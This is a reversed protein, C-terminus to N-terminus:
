YFGRKSQHDFVQYNNNGTNNINNYLRTESKNKNVDNYNCNSPTKAIMQHDNINHKSKVSQQQQQQQLRSRFNDISKRCPQVRIPVNNNINNSDFNYNYNNNINNCNNYNYSELRQAATEYKFNDNKYVSFTAKSPLSQDYVLPSSQTSSFANVDVDTMDSSYSFLRNISQYNNLTKVPKSEGNQFIPADLSDKILKKPQLRKIKNNSEMNLKCTLFNNGIFQQDANSVLKSQQNLKSNHTIPNKPLLCNPKKNELNADVNSANFINNQHDFDFNYDQKAIFENNPFLLRDENQFLSYSSAKNNGILDSDNFGNLNTDAICLLSDLNFNHGTTTTNAKSKPDDEDVNQVPYSIENALVTVPSTNISQVVVSNNSSKQFTTTISSTPSLCEEERDFKKGILESSSVASSENKHFNTTTQKSSHVENSNNEATTGDDLLSFNNEDLLENEKFFPIFSKFFTEKLLEDVDENPANKDEVLQKSPSSNLSGINTSALSKFFASDNSKKTYNKLFDIDSNNQTLSSRQSTIADNVPQVNFHASTSQQYVHESPTWTSASPSLCAAALPLQYNRTNIKESNNFNPHINKMSSAFSYSDNYLADNNNIELKKRDVIVDAQPTAQNLSSISCSKSLTIFVQLREMETYVNRLQSNDHILNLQHVRQANGIGRHITDKENNTQCFDVFHMWLSLLSKDHTEYQDSQPNPVSYAQVVHPQCNNDLKENLM